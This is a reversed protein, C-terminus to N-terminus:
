ISIEAGDHAIQVGALGHDLLRPHAPRITHDCGVDRERMHESVDSHKAAERLAEEASKLNGTLRHSDGILELAAASEPCSQVAEVARKHIAVLAVGSELLESSSPISGCDLEARGSASVLLPTSWVLLLVFSRM